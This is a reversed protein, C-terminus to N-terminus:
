ESRIKWPLRWVGVAETESSAAAYTTVPMEPCWPGKLKTGAQWAECRPHEGVGVHLCTKSWNPIFM